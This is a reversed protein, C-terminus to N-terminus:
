TFIELKAYKADFTTPGKMEACTLGVTISNINGTVRISFDLGIRYTALTLIPLTKLRM